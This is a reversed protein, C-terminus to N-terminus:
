ARKWRIRILYMIGDFYDLNGIKEIYKGEIGVLMVDDM